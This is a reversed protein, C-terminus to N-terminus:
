IGRCLWDGKHVTFQEDGVTLVESEEAEWPDGIWECVYYPYTPHNAICYAGFNGQSIERAYSAGIHTMTDAKSLHFEDLVCDNRPEFWGLKWDNYGKGTPNGNEDHIQMMPWLYCTDSPIGYREEPIKKQLQQYCGECSCPFRRYAFKGNLCREFGFNYMAKLGNGREKKGFGMASMKIGRWKAVGEKRVEYVRKSLAVDSKTRETDAHPKNAPVNQGREPNILIEKCLDAGDVRLGDVMDCMFYSRKNNVKAEEQYIM